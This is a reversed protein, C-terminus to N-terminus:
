KCFPSFFECNPVQQIVFPSCFKFIFFSSIIKYGSQTFPLVILFYVVFEEGLFVKLVSECSYLDNLQTIIFTIIVQQRKIIPTDYLPKNRYIQLKCIQNRNGTGGCVSLEITYPFLM